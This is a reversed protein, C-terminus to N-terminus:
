LVYDYSARKRGMVRTYKLYLDGWDPLPTVPPENPPDDRNQSPHPNFSLEGRFPLGACEIFSTYSSVFVSSYNFYLKRKWYDSNRDTLNVEVSNYAPQLRCPQYDLREMGVFFSLLFSFWMSNKKLLRKFSRFEGEKEAKHDVLANIEEYENTGQWM